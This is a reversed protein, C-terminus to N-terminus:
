PLSSATSGGKHCGSLGLAMHQCGEGLGLRGTRERLTREGADVFRDHCRRSWPARGGDRGSRRRLGEARRGPRASGDALGTAFDRRRELRWVLDLDLMCDVFACQEDGRGLDRRRADDFYRWVTSKPPFDKPLYRWQCGTRLLYFVADVVDRLNTTRPRGGPYVPLLPEILAWQEDTVDSPYKNTRM